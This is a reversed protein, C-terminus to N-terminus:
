EDEDAYLQTVRIELPQLLPLNSQPRDLYFYATASVDDSRYFNTWGDPLSEDTLDVPNDPDYIHHMVPVKHVTIPSLPVGAQQLKMVEDQANGGIQQITVKVDNAFFVPDPIHYRFFAWQNHPGGAVLCGSYDTCFEGQGWATGIYDETGTGVLTALNTDGDLYIKVEGEGWWHKKYAPNANVGINTGLFRGRGAVKPLIQFDQGLETALDRHWYCHFYLFDPNWRSLRILNIDYFLMDLDKGSENTVVVRAAKKFPMPIFCNFSRGEPDAFLANEFATRRGLGVGFFDGFPAAVAPRDADDWFMEIKLSRLMEPSRDNITCWMRTIMGPGTVDLLTVSDGANLTQCPHGKAGRNEAGGAGKEATLNEFSSWRTQVDQFQFLPAGVGSCTSSSVNTRCSVAALTMLPLLLLNAKKM